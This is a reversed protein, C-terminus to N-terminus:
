CRMEPGSLHKRSPYLKRPAKIEVELADFSVQEEASLARNSDKAAKVLAAQAEIKAKLQERFNM